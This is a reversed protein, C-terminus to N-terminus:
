PMFPVWPQLHAGGIATTSAGRQMPERVEHGLVRNGFDIVIQVNWFGKEGPVRGLNPTGDALRPTPQPPGMPRGRPAGGQPIQAPSSVALVSLLVVAGAVIAVVGLLRNRM